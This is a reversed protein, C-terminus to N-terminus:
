GVEPFTYGLTALRRLEAEFADWHVDGVDLLNTWCIAERHSPAVEAMEIALGFRVLDATRMWTLRAGPVKQDLAKQRGHFSAERTGGHIESSIVLFRPIVGGPCSWGGVSPNRLYDAFGTLDRYTMSYGANAAKCDYLVPTDMGPFDFVGDPIPQGRKKTGWSLGRARFTTTMTLFFCREFLEHAPRGTWRLAPPIRNRSLPRLWLLGNVFSFRADTQDRLEHLAARDVCCRGQADYVIVSSEQCLKDFAATDIVAVGSPVVTGDTLGLPTVAVPDLGVVLAERQLQQLEATTVSHPFLRFRQKHQLGLASSSVVGFDVFTGRPSVSVGSAWELLLAHTIQRLNTLSLEAFYGAM